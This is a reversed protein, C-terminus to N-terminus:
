TTAEPTLFLIREARRRNELGNVIRDDAIDWILFQDAAEDYDGANLFKLLTSGALAGEGENYSFDLLAAKQNANLPVRCIRLVESYLVDMRSLLDADAQAQTWATGPGIGPGTAGFGVTWPEGHSIPDAYAILHCGEWRKTFPIVVDQWTPASM